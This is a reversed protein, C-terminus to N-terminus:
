FRDLVKQYTKLLKFLDFSELESDVLAKNAIQKLEKSVNGRDHKTSQTQEM